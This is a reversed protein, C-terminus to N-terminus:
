VTGCYSGGISCSNFQNYKKRINILIRSINSRGCHLKDSLDVGKYGKSVLYLVQKEKVTLSKIFDKLGYSFEVDSTMDSGDSIVDILELDEDDSVTASLSQKILGGGRCVRSNNRVEECIANRMVRYAYTSFCVDRKKDFKRVAVCLAYALVGYYESESLKNDYLFSFILNHNQEVLKSEDASLREM